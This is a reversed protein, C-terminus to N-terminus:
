ATMSRSLFRQLSDELINKRGDEQERNIANRFGNVIADSNPGVPDANFAFYSAAHTRVWGNEDKLANLMVAAVEPDVFVALKRGCADRVHQSSSRMGFILANRVVASPMGMLLREAESSTKVASNMPMWGPLLLEVLQEPTRGSLMFKDLFSM